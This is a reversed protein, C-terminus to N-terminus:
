ANGAFKQLSQDILESYLGMIPWSPLQPSTPNEQVVTEVM